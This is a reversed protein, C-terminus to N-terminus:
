SRISVDQGVGDYTIPSREQSLGRTTFGANLRETSLRRWVM